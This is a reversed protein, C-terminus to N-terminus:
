VVIILLISTNKIDRYMVVSAGISCYDIFYQYKRIDRYMVVSAGIFCYDIFYQYKRIDRYM